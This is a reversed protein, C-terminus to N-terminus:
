RSDPFVRGKPFSPDKRICAGCCFGLMVLAGVMVVINVRIVQALSEHFFWLALVQVAALACLPFTIRTERISLFFQVLLNVLSYLGMFLAFQGLYPVAKLYAQGFFASVLLSPFVSYAAWAVAAGVGTLALSGMLIGSSDEGNEHKESALPFMVLAISSLGFFIIRGLM